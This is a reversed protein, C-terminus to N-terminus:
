KVQIEGVKVQSPSLNGLFTFLFPSIYILRLRKIYRIVFHLVFISSLVLDLKKMFQHFFLAVHQQQKQFRKIQQLKMISEKKIKSLSMFSESNIFKTSHQSNPPLAFVAELYPLPLLPHYITCFTALSEKDIFPCVIVNSKTASM